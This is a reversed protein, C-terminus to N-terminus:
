PARNACCPSSTAGFIHVLMQYEKPPLSLATDWWLFRLADADDLIVKVQHFMAEIDATFATEEERFRILVGVLNNTLDPGHYLRDHLSIGDFQAAADLVVRVKNPKNVNLM